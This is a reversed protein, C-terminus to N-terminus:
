GMVHRHFCLPFVSTHSWGMSLRASSPLPHDAGHKSRKAGLFSGNGMTCSAPHAKPSTQVACFFRTVVLIRNRSQRAWLSNSYQGYQGLHNFIKHSSMIQCTSQPCLNRKHRCLFKIRKEKGNFPWKFDTSKYPHSVQSTVFSILM